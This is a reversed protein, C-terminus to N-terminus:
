GPRARAPGSPARLQRLLRERTAEFEGRARHRITVTLGNGGRWGAHEVVGDAVAWVPTGAPAAYDVALHPRVGGLIPHRRARSYGSSIRTFELPSRLFTRRLSEGRPTYYGETRRHAFYAAAHTRGRTVYEAALIRGDKVFAGEVFLKEVLIGFRDGPRSDQNFDITWVFIEVFDLALQPAEGLGDLSEFLSSRVEGAVQVTRREVPVQRRAARWESGHLTVDYIDLPSQTYVLRSPAGDPDRHLDLRDGPQLCRLDLVGRLAAVIRGAAEDAVGLRAL